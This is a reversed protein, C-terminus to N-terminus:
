TACTRCYNINICYKGHIPSTNTGENILTASQLNSVSISRTNGPEVTLVRAITGIVEVIIPESSSENNYINITGTVSNDILSEWLESIVVQNQLISINGCFDDVIINDVPTPNPPVIPPVPFGICCIPRYKKHSCCQNGHRQSSSKSGVKNV